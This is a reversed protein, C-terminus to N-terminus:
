VKTLIPSKDPRLFLCTVKSIVQNDVVENKITSVFGTKKNCYDIQQHVGNLSYPAVTYTILVSDEPAVDFDSLEPKPLLALLCGLCFGLALGLYFKSTKM